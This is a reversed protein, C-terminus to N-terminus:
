SKSMQAVREVIVSALDDPHFKPIFRDAGVKEVMAQNFVGSLSTHLVVFLHRLREDKRIESTLTYGDMTPMEVDSIVMILDNLQPAQGQAWGKLLALAEAGNKAMMCKIGLQDLTGKIQNRAVFSDDVVLVLSDPSAIGAAERLIEDSVNENVGVVSSFIQEVDVIEVLTGDVRTVATLYNSTNTGSPPPMIEKWSLNVIRDVSRVLFGQVARNYETIIVFAESLESDSMPPLGIAQALDIITLTNGRVDAIGKIASDAKPVHTLPPCRIVERVKFVNIGFKQGGGLGFVLLELRNHGALKTRSDVSALMNKM